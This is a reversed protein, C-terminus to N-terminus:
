FVREAKALFLFASPTDRLKDFAAPNKEIAQEFITQNPWLFQRVVAIQPEPEVSRNIVQRFSSLSESDKLAEEFTWDIIPDKIFQTLSIYTNATHASWQLDAHPAGPDVAGRNVQVIDETVLSIIHKSQDCFLPEDPELYEHFQPDNVLDAAEVSDHWVEAIALHTLDGDKFSSGLLRHHQVYKSIARMERTYGAHPHRWHDSFAQASIDAKPHALQMRKVPLNVRNTQEKMDRLKTILLGIPLLLGFAANNLSNETLILSCQHATKAGRQHTL